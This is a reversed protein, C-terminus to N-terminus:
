LAALQRLKFQGKRGGGMKAARIGTGEHGGERAKGSGTIWSEVEENWCPLGAVSRFNEAPLVGDKRFRQPKETAKNGHKIGKVANKKSNM